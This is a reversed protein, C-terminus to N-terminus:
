LRRKVGVAHLTALVAVIAVAAGAFWLGFGQPAAYFHSEMLFGNLGIAGGYQRWEEPKELTEWKTVESRYRLARALDDPAFDFDERTESRIKFGQADEFRDIVIFSISTGRGDGEVVEVDERRRDFSKMRGLADALLKGYDGPDATRPRGLAAFSISADDRFLEAVDGEGTTCRVWRDAFEELARRDDGALPTAAILVAITGLSVPLRIASRPTM